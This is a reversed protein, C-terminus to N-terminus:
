GEINLYKYLLSYLQKGEEISLNSHSALHLPIDKCKEKMKRGKDTLKVFVKREDDKDRIRILYNNAEMKKLVPSITGSDLFLKDAIENVSINDKEWLVMFVIYQTYTINLPSLYPTYASTIKRAASYLPFCLQNKLKLAEDYDYKNNM